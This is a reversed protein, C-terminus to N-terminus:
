WIVDDNISFNNKEFLDYLIETTLDETLTLELELLGTNTDTFIKNDYICYYLTFQSQNTINDICCHSFRFIIDDKNQTIAKSKSINLFDICKEIDSFIYCDYNSNCQSLIILNFM